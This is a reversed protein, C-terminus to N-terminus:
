LCYWLRSCKRASTLILAHVEVLLDGSGGFTKGPDRDQGDEAGSGPTRVARVAVKVHRHQRIGRIRASAPMELRVERYGQCVEGGTFRQQGLVRDAVTDGAAALAATAGTLAMLGAMWLPIWLSTRKREGNM